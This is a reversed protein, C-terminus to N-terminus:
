FQNISINSAATQMRLMIWQLLLLVELFALVLSWWLFVLLFRVFFVVILVCELYPTWHPPFNYWNLSFHLDFLVWRERRLSISRWTERLSGQLYALSTFHLGQIKLRRGPVYNFMNYAKSVNFWILSACDYKIWFYKM